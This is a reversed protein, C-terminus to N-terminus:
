SVTNGSNKYLGRWDVVYAGADISVKFETGDVSWGMRQEVRPVENGGLWAVNVAYGKPAALFWPLGLVDLRADSIPIIRGAYPNARLPEAATGITTSNLLSYVEADNAMATIIYQPRINYAAGAANKHTAMATVGQSLTAVAPAAGTTALNDHAASFLAAGDNMTPNNILLGYVMDGVTRMAARGMARPADMLLSLNDNIIAQRTLAFTKGYPSVSFVTGKESLTGRRYEGGEEIKDLSSFADIGVGTQERFDNATSRGTWLPFTEDAEQAGVLVSKNITDGLVLPFSDTGTFARGVMDALGDHRKGERRLCERALELCSYGRLEDAGAAPKHKANEQFMGARLIMADSAAARFKDMDGIGVEVRPSPAHRLNDNELEHLVTARFQDVSHGQSIARQAQELCNHRMGIALIEACAVRVQEAHPLVPASSLTSEMRSNQAPSTPMPANDHEVRDANDNGIPPMSKEEPQNNEYSRAKAYEDAGIPTLSGERVQWKTSVKLPGTFIKGEVTASTGEPIFVYEQVTYGISIDTIHGERVKIFASEAESSFYATALLEGNNVTLERLSGLQDEVSTRSHADLLPVQEAFSAGSMLLVERVLGYEWDYVQVPNETALVFGVSRMASNLSGPSGDTNKPLSIARTNLTRDFSQKNKPPM